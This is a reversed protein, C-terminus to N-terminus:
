AELALFAEVVKPDFYAGVQARIYERVKDEPWALRYPRDSRLADWVDVVAFIRAALPIAEGRLGRPYGTGDWKEHHCHPIDLARRLYAIPYLMEYAYTPHKRMIVWEDETLPGPKLLISDPIGMKGIDHLLAGRRLHVQEEEGVGMVRALQLTMETVRQTHGETEKDRLDLARSWGEITADYAMGLEVNSRQLSEFLQINDVAIATQGALTELFDLWEPDPDLPSRHFIELVGKVYGKAILPAIHHAVFGEGALLGARVFVAGARLLNPASVIRRELAARGAHGEGLRLRSRTIGSGRFGRGATYELTHTNPDLLLVAAADVRLQTTVQDLLVNLTVRLDLSANIAADIARLADLRELREQTQEHLTARHIANATIDAIAALLRVEDDGFPASRAVWLAGITQGHVILPVCAGARPALEPGAPPGGLLEPRYVRPDDLLDDSLYPQGTAIVHGTIGEGPPYRLGTYHAWAGSALEIVTEGSAPDRMSLEAGAAKLLGQLKELIIPLMEARTQATRLSSSVSAIAALEENRRRVEAEAEKRATIDHKISVFHSIAGREDRVPTVTMEEVYLSADKRRNIIEGRWVEGALITDWLRQYFSQDQLGSKLLRPNQGLAEAPLYGTLHTFAPNVWTISGDRDTIVIANAASEMAASQLRLREEAQRRETIDSFTVVAGRIVGDEVIPYAAYEAPFTTGDKRWFVDSDVHCDQGTQFTRHIPCEAVPYPSGDPRTHHTLLHMDQGLVEQLTHGILEAGAHNIFTCRGELDVGYIGEGTSELLLRIDNALREQEAQAQKRETVDRYNVVVAQVSPDALLNVGVGEMWRWSGDKRRVRVEAAASGGPAQLVQAFLNLANQADDPHLREFASRGMVEEPRFGLVRHASASQYLIRGDAGILAVVDSSNEILARFRRESAALTEESRRRQLAAGLIGVAARLADVESASWERERACEDFGIFGWWASGAFVPVAVISLIDQPALVAQESEPFERVHGYVAQGRSMVEIWRGFGAAQLPLGQLDPSDIQPTVGPAAWEYRQSTLLAGDPGPHNEFIYVRSVGTAQGLRALAAQVNTEWDAPQLLQEAVAGVAELIAERRRLAEESQKRATIDHAVLVATDEPMPSITGAFWFEQGGISLSYDLRVTQQTDLARRIHELLLDAQPAPLVEHVTKGLMDAPPRYLRSVDTPAIKLYRGERDYVIVVDHMAAFLARLEAESTRLAAEAQKRETIDRSVGLVAHAEGAEDRLPVLWTGLWLSGGPFATETEVYMPQGTDLVTQLSHGQRESVASPFLAARPKGVLDEPQRGFQRAAFGNVYAIRDDRSIIFIADHAAEALTRYREESARLAAEAEKREMFQGFQVGIADFVQLLDADPEGNRTSLFAMVGLVEGGFKIPFGYAARLGEKAAFPARPFNADQTVDPIWVPEGAAWVRGPLGVGRAFTMQRSAAEFEPFAASPAHWFDECRLVGAERDVIWLEGREWELNECLARLIKPAADALRDAEALFHAAAHQAESRRQARVQETVDRFNVVVGRVSPEALLNTGTTEIWRWSGDRHRYRFREAAIKGPGAALRAFADTVRPLDEPHVFEFVNRGVLEAESYGLLRTISPSAYQRKGDAGMVAVGDASNEILARFRKESAALVEAARKRETIDMGVGMLCPRGEVATFRVGTFYYPIREGRKTVLHAEADSVGNEFVQQIRREIYRKEEGVFFDLPSMRAIEDAAYGSVTELNKNWQLFKGTRDFLYFIGPLSTVLSASFERERAIGAEVRRRERRDEAERLERRVAPVLRALKHKFIFDSAGALLIEVAAEEGVVGSVLIFPVDLGSQKLVELAAPGSFFPMAYDSLILDWAQRELAAQMAPATDVRECAPDYGGRRLEHALVQADDPSDEVILVRLPSSM